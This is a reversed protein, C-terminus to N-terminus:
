YREGKSKDALVNLCSVIFTALSIPNLIHRRLYSIGDIDQVVGNGGVSVSEEQFLPNSIM